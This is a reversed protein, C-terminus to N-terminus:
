PLVSLSRNANLTTGYRCLFQYYAFSDILGSNCYDLYWRYNAMGKRSRYAALFATRDTNDVQGDGNVDGFLRFFHDVRDGGVFGDGDGDLQAGLQHDTVLNSHITLTYRGDALSAATIGSGAFTLTVVTRGAATLATSLNLVGSVDTTTGAYAQVLTFAGPAIDVQTSFTVTVSDVMSRQAWGDNIVVSQVAAPPVVTQSYAAASSFDRTDGLYTVVFQKGAGVSLRPDHGPITISFTGPSSPWLSHTTVSGTWTGVGDTISVMGTPAAYPQGGSTQEVNGSITVAQGRASLGSQQDLTVQTQKLDHFPPLQASQASFPGAPILAPDLPQLKWRTVGGVTLTDADSSRDTLSTAITPDNVAGDDSLTWTMQLASARTADNQTTPDVALSGCVVNQGSLFTGTAANYLAYVTYSGAKVGRPLQQWTWVQRQRNADTTAELTPVEQTVGDPLLPATLSLTPDTASVVQFPAVSVNYDNQISGYQRGSPGNEHLLDSPKAPSDTKSIVYEIGNAVEQKLDLSVPDFGLTAADTADYVTQSVTDLPGLLANSYGGGLSQIATAGLDVKAAAGFRGSFTSWVQDNIPVQKTTIPDTASGILVVQNNAGPNWSIGSTGFLEEIGGTLSLKYNITGIGISGVTISGGLPNPIKLPKSLPISDKKSYDIGALVSVGDGWKPDAPNWSAHSNLGAAVVVHTGQWEMEQPLYFSADGHGELRVSLVHQLDPTVRVTVFTDLDGQHDAFPSLQLQRDGTSKDIDTLSLDSFDSHFKAALGATQAGNFGYLSYYTLDVYSRDPSIQVVVYEPATIDSGTQPVVGNNGPYAASDITLFYNNDPHTALDQQTLPGAKTLTAPVDEPYSTPDKQNATYIDLDREWLSSHQLLYDVSVPYYQENKHFDIIPAFKDLVSQTVNLGYLQTVSTDTATTLPFPPATSLV